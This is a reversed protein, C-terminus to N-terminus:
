HSGAGVLERDRDAEEAAVTHRCSTSDCLACHWTGDARRRLLSIERRETSPAFVVCDDARRFYVEYEM